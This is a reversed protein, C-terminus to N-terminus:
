GVTYFTQKAEKAGTRVGEEAANSRDVGKALGEVDELKPSLSGLM